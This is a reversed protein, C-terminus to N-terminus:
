LAFIMDDPPEGTYRIAYRGGTPLTKMHSYLTDEDECDFIVRGGRLVPGRDSRVHDLVVWRDPYRRYIENLDLIEPKTLEM